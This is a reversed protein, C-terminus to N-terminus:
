VLPWADRFLSDRWARSSRRGARARRWARRRRRPTARAARRSSLTARAHASAPRHRLWAIRRVDFTAAECRGRYPLYAGMEICKACCQERSLGSGLLAFQPLGPLERGAIDTNQLEDCRANSAAATSARVRVVCARAKDGGGLCAAAAEGACVSAELNRGPNLKTLTALVRGGQADADSLTIREPFKGPSYEVSYFPRGAVKSGLSARTLSAIRM